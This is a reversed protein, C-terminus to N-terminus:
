PTKYADKPYPKGFKNLHQTAVFASEDLVLGSVTASGGISVEVTVPAARESLATVRYRGAPVDLRWTGDQAAVTVYPTATVVVFAAMQPHINCFVNYVGPRAFVRQKSEGARYLGM